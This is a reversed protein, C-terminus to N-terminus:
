AVRKKYIFYISPIVLIQLIIGPLSAMVSSILAYVSVFPIPLHLLKVAIIISVVYITRSLFSGVGISIVPPLKKHLTHIFIAYAMLEILMFFLIPVPPM